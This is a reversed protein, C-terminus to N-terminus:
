PWPFAKIVNSDTFAPRPIGGLLAVSDRDGQWVRRSSATVRETLVDLALKTALTTSPSFDVVGHPQFANGCGAEVIVTKADSPWDTLSFAPIGESTIGAFLTDGGVLAVAHGVIAYEEM